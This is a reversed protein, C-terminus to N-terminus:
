ASITACGNCWRGPSPSPARWRMSRRRGRRAQLRAHHDARLDVSLTKRRHEDAPFLRHWLHEQGAGARPLGARAAGRAPRRAHGRASCERSRGRWGWRGRQLLSNGAPLRPSHRFPQSHGPGLRANRSGDAAHALRQHRRHHAHRGRRRRDPELRDLSGDHRVAGRGSEADKRAGPVHDLLWRLKLGSFYTALPLGTKARLRDQGGNAAFNACSLTPARTWGCSPM